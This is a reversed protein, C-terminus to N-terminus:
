PQPEDRLSFAQRVGVSIDQPAGDIAFDGFGEAALARMRSITSSPSEMPEFELIVHGRAASPLRALIDSRAPLRIWDGAPLQGWIDADPLSKMAYVLHMPWRWREAAHRMAEAQASRPRAPVSLGSFSVHRALDAVLMPTDLWDEPIEVYVAAGGRSEIQWSIRNLSDHKVPLRTTPFLALQGSAGAENPSLFIMNPDIADIGDVVVSLQNESDAPWHGPAIRLARRPPPPWTHRLVEALNTPTSPNQILYRRITALSESPSNAGDELTFGVPMALSAAIDQSTRNSRGYPWVVIRPARGTHAKIQERAKSLDERLRQEYSDDTEYHGGAYIRTVAAPELSGMPNGVLGLHLQYTHTAIEVLGSQQMERLQDWTAFESRSVQRDGYSVKEDPRLDMWAGVPAVVAPYKFLRLLPFARTYVSALGDDFTLLIAQDPLPPGGRRAALIADVSVPHYGNAQLWAFEAALERTSIATPSYAEPRDGTVEHYCLAVFDGPEGAVLPQCLAAALMCSFIQRILIAM